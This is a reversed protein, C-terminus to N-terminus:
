TAAASASPRASIEESSAKADALTGALTGVTATVPVLPLDVTQVNTPCSM